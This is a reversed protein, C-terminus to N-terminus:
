CVFVGCSCIWGHVSALGGWRSRPMQTLGCPEAFIFQMCIIGGGAGYRMAIMQTLGCPEFMSPVVIMDCAAYILHSLPEDYRHFLTSFHQRLAFVLTSLPTHICPSPQRYSARQKLVIPLNGDDDHM